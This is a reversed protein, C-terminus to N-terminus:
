LMVIFILKDAYRCKVMHVYQEISVLQLKYDAIGKSRSFLMAIKRGLTVTQQIVVDIIISNNMPSRYSNDYIFNPSNNIFKLNILDDKSINPTDTWDPPYFPLQIFNESAPYSGWNYMQKNFIVRKDYNMEIDFHNYLNKLCCEVCFDGDHIVDIHANQCQPCVYENSQMGQLCIVSISQALEESSDNYNGYLRQTYENESHDLEMRREYQEMLLSDSAAKCSQWRVINDVFHFYEVDNPDVGGKGMSDRKLSICYCCVIQSVGFQSNAVKEACGVFSLQGCLICELLYQCGTNLYCKYCYEYPKLLDIEQNNVNTCDYIIEGDFFPLGNFVKTPNPRDKSCILPVNGEDLDETAESDRKIHSSMGDIDDESVKVTPLQLLSFIQQLKDHHEQDTIHISEPFVPQKDSNPYRGYIRYTSCDQCSHLIGKAISLLSM